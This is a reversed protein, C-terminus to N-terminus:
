DARVSRFAEEFWWRTNPRPLDTPLSPNNLIFIRREPLRARNITDRHYSMFLQHFSSDAKAM